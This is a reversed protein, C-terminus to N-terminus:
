GSLVEKPENLRQKRKDLLGRAVKVVLPTGDFVLGTREVGAEDIWIRILNALRVKANRNEVIGEVAGFADRALAAVKRPM